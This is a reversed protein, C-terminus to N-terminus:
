NIIFSLSKKEIESKTYTKCNYADSLCKQLNSANIIINDDVNFIESESIEYVGESTDFTSKHFFIGILESSKKM